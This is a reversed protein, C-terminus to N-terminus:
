RLQETNNRSPLQRTATWIADKVQLKNHPENVNNNLTIEQHYNGPRLGSQM